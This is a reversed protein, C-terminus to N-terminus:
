IRRDRFFAGALSAVVPSVLSYAVYWTPGLKSEPNLYMVLYFIVPLMGAVAAQLMARSGGFSAAIYGGYGAALLTLFVSLSVLPDFNYWSSALTAYAQQASVGRAMQLRVYVISTATGFFAAGAIAVSGGLISARAIFARPESATTIESM